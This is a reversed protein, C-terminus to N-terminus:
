ALKWYFGNKSKKNNKCCCSIERHDTGTKREAESMSEYEAVFVMNEDYQSVKVSLVNDKGSNKGLHALIMKNRHNPNKWLDLAAKRQNEIREETHKKGRLSSSIKKKVEETHSYGSASKGGHSINYGYKQNTSNYFKILMKELQEANERTLGTILIEHRFSGWGYKKIASTFHKNGFYGYGSKWRETPKKGTIGIYVKNTPSIHRYVTYNM